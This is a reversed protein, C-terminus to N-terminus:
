SPTPLLPSCSGELWAQCSLCPRLPPFGKPVGTFRVAAALAYELAFTLPVVPLILALTRM